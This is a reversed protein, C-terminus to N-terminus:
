FPNFSYTSPIWGGKKSYLRDEAAPDSNFFVDPDWREPRVDTIADVKNVINQWFDAAHRAGPYTCGMGVIAVDGRVPPFEVSGSRPKM